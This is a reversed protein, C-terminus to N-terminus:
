QDDVQEQEANRANKKAAAEQMRHYYSCKWKAYASQVRIQERYEELTLGDFRARHNDYEDESANSSKEIPSIKRKSRYHFVPQKERMVVFGKNGMLKSISDDFQVYDPVTSVTCWGDISTNTFAWLKAASTVLRITGNSFVVADPFATRNSM